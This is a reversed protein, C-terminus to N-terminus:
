VKSIKDMAIKGPLTKLIQWPLNRHRPLILFGAAM